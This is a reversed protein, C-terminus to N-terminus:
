HGCSSCIYRIAHENEKLQLYVLATQFLRDDTQDEALSAELYEIAEEFKGAM